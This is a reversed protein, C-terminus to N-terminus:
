KLIAMISLSLLILGALLQAKQKLYYVSKNGIVCGIFSVFFTIVGIILVTVTLNLSYLSFVLGIVLADISTALGLGLRCNVSICKCSEGTNTECIARSKFYDYLTKVALVFFVAFSIWKAYPLVYEKISNGILWGIVPMVAQFVGFTGAIKLFQRTIFFKLKIGCTISVAFADLSLAIAILIITSYDM